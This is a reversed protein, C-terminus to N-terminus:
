DSVAEPKSVISAGAKEIRSLFQYPGTATDKYNRWIKYGKYSIFFVGLGLGTALIVPNATGALLGTVIPPTSISAADTLADLAFRPLSQRYSHWEDIVEEAAVKLRKMREEPNKIDPIKEAIERTARKFKRLDKGDQILEVIQEPSLLSVDFQTTMVMMALEDTLETAQIPSPTTQEYRRYLVSNIVEQENQTALAHHLKGSSTVIDLGRDKAVAIATLSMITEGLRPHVVYLNWKAYDSRPDWALQKSELYDLLELIFKSECIVFQDTEGAFKRETTKRSYNELILPENNQLETLLKKQVEQVAQIDLTEEKLLPENRAGKLERFKEIESAEDSHKGYDIAYGKPVMTRIQPFCLLTAKLWDLNTVHIRPYYLADRDLVSNM